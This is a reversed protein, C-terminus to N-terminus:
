FDFEDVVNEGDGVAFNQFDISWNEQPLMIHGASFFQPLAYNIETDILLDKLCNSYKICPNKLGALLHVWLSQNVAQNDLQDLPKYNLYLKNPHVISVIKYFLKQFSPKMIHVAVNDLFDQVQQQITVNNRKKVWTALLEHYFAKGQTNSANHLLPKSEGFPQSRKLFRKMDLFEVPMIDDASFDASLAEFLFPKFLWHAPHTDHPVAFSRRTDMLDLVVMFKEYDTNEDWKLKDGPYFVTVNLLVKSKCFHIVLPDVAFYMGNYTVVSNVKAPSVVAPAPKRDPTSSTRNSSYPNAIKTTAPLKKDLLNSEKRAVASRKFNLGGAARQVEQLFDRSGHKSEIWKEFSVQRFEKFKEEVEQMNNSQVMDVPQDKNMQKYQEFAAQLEAKSNFMIKKQLTFLVYFFGLHNDLMSHDNKKCTMEKAPQKRELEDQKSEEPSDVVIASYVSEVDDDDDENPKSKDDDDLVIVDGFLKEEEKKTIKAYDSCFQQHAENAEEQSQYTGIRFVTGPNEKVFKKKADLAPTSDNHYYEIKDMTEFTFVVYM